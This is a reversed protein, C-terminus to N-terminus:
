NYKLKFTSKEFIKFFNILVVIIETFEDLDVVNDRNVNILNNTKNMTEICMKVDRIICKAFNIIRYYFCRQFVVNNVVYIYIEVIKNDYNILFEDLEVNEIQLNLKHFM